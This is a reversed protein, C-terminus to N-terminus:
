YVPPVQTHQQLAWFTGNQNLSTALKMNLTSDLDIKWFSNDMNKLESLAREDWELEEVVLELDGYTM